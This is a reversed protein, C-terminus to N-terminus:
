LNLLGRLIPPIEFIDFIRPPLNYPFHGGDLIMELDGSTLESNALFTNDILYVYASGEIFEDEFVPRARYGLDLNHAYYIDRKYYYLYKLKRGFSIIIDDEEETVENSLVLYYHKSFAEYSRGGGEVIGEDSNVTYHNWWTFEEVFDVAVPVNVPRYKVNNM